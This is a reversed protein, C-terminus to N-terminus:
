QSQVLPPTQQESLTNEVAKPDPGYRNTFRQGDKLLLICHFVFIFLLSCLIILNTYAITSGIERMQTEDIHALNPPVLELYSTIFVSGAISILLPPLYAALQWWGSWGLDHLRRANLSFTALSIVIAYVFLVIGILAIIVWMGIVSTESLNPSTSFLNLSFLAAILMFVFQFGFQLLINTLIFWGYEARRARGQYNFTNKLAHIFWKM